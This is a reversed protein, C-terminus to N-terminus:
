KGLVMNAVMEGTSAAGDTLMSYMPTTCDGAFYLNSIEDYHHNVKPQINYFYHSPALRGQLPTEFILNEKLGPFMREMEDRMSDEVATKDIQQFEAGKMIRYAWIFQKGEEANWPQEVSQATGGLVHSGDGKNDFEMFFAGDLKIKDNLIYTKFASGMLHAPDMIQSIINQLFAPTPSFLTPYAGWRTAVVYNDATLIKEDGDMVVKLGSVKGDEVVVQKVDVSTKITVGFKKQVAEAIPLAIGEQPNPCPVSMVGDGAIWMRLMVLGKGVSGYNWTYDADCTFISSALLMNFVFQIGKDDTRAVIWDKVSVTDWETTMKELPTEYIEHMIPILKEETEETLMEPRAAALLEKVWIAAGEPSLCEPIKMDCNEADKLYIRPAGSNYMRVNAGFDQAVKAWGSANGYSHKATIPYVMSVTCGMLKNPITSGGILPSKEVILVKKGEKALYGATALGSLGAGIVISDFKETM